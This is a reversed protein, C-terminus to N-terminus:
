KIQYILIQYVACGSTQMVQIKLKKKFSFNAQNFIACSHAALKESIIFKVYEDLVYLFFGLLIKLPIKSFSIRFGSMFLFNIKKFVSNVMTHEKKTIILGNCTKLDFKPNPYKTIYKKIRKISNIKSAGVLNKGHQRYEILDQNLAVVKGYSVSNIALWGDHIWFRSFPRSSLYLERKFAMTAGTVVSRNLLIDIFDKRNFEKISFGLTKWLKSGIRQRKEDVLVANSFIM